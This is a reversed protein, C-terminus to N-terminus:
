AVIAKRVHGMLLLSTDNYLYKIKLGEISKIYSLTNDTSADDVIILEVDVDRQKAITEIAEQLLLRRNHTPIIISIM